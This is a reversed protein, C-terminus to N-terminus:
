GQAKRVQVGVRLLEGDPLVPDRHPRAPGTRGWWRRTAQGGPGPTPHHGHARRGRGRRRGDRRGSYAARRRSSIAVEGLFESGEALGPYALATALWGGGWIVTMRGGVLPWAMADSTRPITPRATRCSPLPMATAPMTRPHTPMPIMTTTAAIRM